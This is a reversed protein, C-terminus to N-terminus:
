GEVLGVAWSSAGCDNSDKLSMKRIEGAPLEGDEKLEALTSEIVRDLSSQGRSRRRRNYDIASFRMARSGPFEVIKVGDPLEKLDIDIPLPLMLNITGDPLIQEQINASTRAGATRFVEYLRPFLPYQQWLEAKSQISAYRGAGITLITKEGIGDSNIKLDDIPDPPIPENSRKHNLFWKYLAKNDVVINHKGEPYFTHEVNGGIDELAKLMKEADYFPVTNDRQGHFIWVPLNKLRKARFVDGQGSLVAIAAFHEPNTMAWDYTGQGGMSAGTLYIREEDIPLLTKIESLLANLSQPMWYMEESIPIVAIFADEKSNEVPRFHLRANTRGSGHLDIRLPYKKANGPFNLPLTVTYNKISISQNINEPLRLPIPAGAHKAYINEKMELAVALNEAYERDSIAEKDITKFDYALTANLWRLAPSLLKTWAPDLFSLDNSALRLRKLLNSNGNKFDELEQLNVRDLTLSSEQELSNEGHSEGVLKNDESIRALYRGFLGVPNGSDLELEVWSVSNPTIVGIGSTKSIGFPPRSWETTVQVERGQKHKVELIIPYSRGPDGAWKLEGKWIGVFKAVEPYEVSEEKADQGFVMATGVFTLVLAMLSLIGRNM